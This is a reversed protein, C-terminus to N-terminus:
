LTKLLPFLNQVGHSLLLPIGMRSNECIFQCTTIADDPGHPRGNIYLSCAGCIGERCDHDFAIPENGKAILQENLQDLMELFSCEATINQITYKEFRGKSKANAQRWIKLSFNM